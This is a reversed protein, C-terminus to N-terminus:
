FLKFFLPKKPNNKRNELEKTLEGIKFNQFVMETGNDFDGKKLYKKLKKLETKLEKISKTKISEKYYETLSKM